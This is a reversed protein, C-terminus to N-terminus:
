RLFREMSQLFQSLCIADLPVISWQMVKEILWGRHLSLPTMHASHTRQHDHYKHWSETQRAIPWLPETRITVVGGRFLYRGPGRRRLDKPPLRHAFAIARRHDGITPNENM